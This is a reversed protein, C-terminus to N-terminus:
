EARLIALIEDLKRDAGSMQGSALVNASVEAMDDKLDQGIKEIAKLRSEIQDLRKGIDNGM